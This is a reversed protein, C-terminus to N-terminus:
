LGAEGSGFGITQLGSVDVAILDTGEDVIITLEGLGTVSSLSEMSSLQDLTVVVGSNVIVDVGDKLDVSRLDATGKAVEVTDFQSM